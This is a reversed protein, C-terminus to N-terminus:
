IGCVGTPCAVDKAVDEATKSRKSYKNVDLPKLPSDGRSGERYFTIGKLKTIYKLVVESLEDVKYHNPLNVTNHVPIGNAMYSHSDDDIELDVTHKKDCMEVRIIKKETPILLSRLNIVHSNTIDDDLEILDKRIDDLTHSKRYQVPIRDDTKSINKLINM